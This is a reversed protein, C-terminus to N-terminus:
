TDGLEANVLVPCFKEFAGNGMVAQIVSPKSLHHLSHVFCQSFVFNPGFRGGARNLLSWCTLLFSAPADVCTGCGLNEVGSSLSAEYPFSLSMEM